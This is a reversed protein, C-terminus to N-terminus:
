RKSLGIKLKEAEDKKKEHCASGRSRCEKGVRREESRGRDRSRSEVSGSHRTRLVAGGSEVDGGCRSWRWPAGASELREGDAAGRGDGRQGAAAASLAGRRPSRVGAGRADAGPSLPRPNARSLAPRM